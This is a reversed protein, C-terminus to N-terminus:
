HSALTASAVHVARTVSARASPGYECARLRPIRKAMTSNLGTISSRRQGNGTSAAAPAPRQRHQRGRDRRVCQDHGVADGCQRQADHEPEARIQSGGPQRSPDGYRGGRDTGRDEAARDPVRGEHDPVRRGGGLDHLAQERQGRGPEDTVADRGPAAVLGSEGLLSFAFSGGFGFASAVLHVGFPDADGAFQVIDYSVGERHDGNLGADAAAQGAFVRLLRGGGEFGDFRDATGSLVLQV